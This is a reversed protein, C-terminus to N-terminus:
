LQIETNDDILAGQVAANIRDLIGAKSSRSQRQNDTQGRQLLDKRLWNRCTLNASRCKKHLQTWNHMSELTNYIDVANYTAFLKEYQGRTFPDKMKGVEPANERIWDQFDKFPDVEEVTEVIESFDSNEEKEKREEKEEEKEGMGGKNDEKNKNKDKDKIINNIEYENENETNASSKAAAFSAADEGGEKKFKKNTSEAGKRGSKSRKESIENDRIMRKQCLSNGKIFLVKEDLLEGLASVIIEYNFPLYKVLKEAFLSVDCSRPAGRHKGNQNSSDKGSNKGRCIDKDRLTIKGYEESKHMLCMIRIYVGTAEASCEALKEDTMFDQVYLPLYPQDRLTM